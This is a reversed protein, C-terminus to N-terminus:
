PLVGDVIGTELCGNEDSGGLVYIGEGCTAVRETVNYEHNPPLYQYIDRCVQLWRNDPTVVYYTCGGFGCAMQRESVNIHDTIEHTPYSQSYCFVFGVVCLILFVLLCVGSILEKITM